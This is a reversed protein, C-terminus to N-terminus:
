AAELWCQPCNVGEYEGHKECRKMGIRPPKGKAAEHRQRIVEFLEELPRLDKQPVLYPKQRGNYLDTLYREQKAEYGWMWGHMTLVPIEGTLLVHAYDDSDNPRVLLEHWSESRTRFEIFDDGDAIKKGNVNVEELLDNWKVGLHTTGVLEGGAGEIDVTWKNRGDFGYADKRNKKMGAIRRKTGVDVARDVEEWTMRITVPM